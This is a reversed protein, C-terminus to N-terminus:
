NKVVLTDADHRFDQIFVDNEKKLM